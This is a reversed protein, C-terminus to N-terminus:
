IKTSTTKGSIIYGAVANENISFTIKDFIVTGVTISM